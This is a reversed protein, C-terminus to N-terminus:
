RTPDETRNMRPQSRWPKEERDLRELHELERVDRIILAVAAAEAVLVLCVVSWAINRPNGPGALQGLVGFVFLALGGFIM